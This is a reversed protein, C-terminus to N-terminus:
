TSSQIPPLIYLVNLIRFKMSHMLVSAAVFPDINTRALARCLNTLKSFDM